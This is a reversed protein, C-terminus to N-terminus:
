RSDKLAKFQKIFKFDDKKVQYGNIFLHSVENQYTLYNRSLEELPLNLFHTTFCVFLTQNLKVQNIDIGIKSFNLFHSVLGIYGKDM